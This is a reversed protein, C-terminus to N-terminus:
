TRLIRLLIITGDKFSKLKSTGGKRASWDVAVEVHNLKAMRVKGAIEAELDFGSSQLELKAISNSKFGWLGTCLDTIKRKNIISSVRSLIRNGFNHLQGMGKPTGKKPLFRSGSVVDAGSKLADIIKAADDFSYSGDADMFLVLDTKNKFWIQLAQRIAAGKGHTENQDIILNSFNIAIKKSLDSTRGDIVFIFSVNSDDFLISSEYNELLYRLGIEEDKVPIIIAVTKM